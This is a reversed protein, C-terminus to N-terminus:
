TVFEVNNIFLTFEFTAGYPSFTGSETIDLPYPRGVFDTFAASPSSGDNYPVTIYILKTGALATDVFNKIGNATKITANTWNLTINPYGHQAQGGDGQPVAESFNKFVPTLPAEIGRLFFYGTTLGSLTTAIRFGYYDRKLMM